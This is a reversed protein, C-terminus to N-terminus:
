TLYRFMPSPMFPIPGIVAKKSTFSPYNRNGAKKNKDLPRNRRHM